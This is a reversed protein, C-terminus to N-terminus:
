KEGSGLPASRGSPTQGRGDWAPSAQIGHGPFRGPLLLVQVMDGAALGPGPPICLLGQALLMQGRPCHERDLPRALLRGNELALSCSTLRLAQASGRAPTTLTALAAPPAGSLGRLGFLAPLVLARCAAFVAPPTGPLGFLLCRGRRCALASKAPHLALGQFLPEFGARLAAALSFDREGPGTGGTTVILDFDEAALAQAIAEPENACVRAAVEGAGGERLLGELLLLNDAVLLPGSAAGAAELPLLENGVALVLVRPAPFVLAERRGLSALAAAAAPTLVQGHALVPTGQALESGPGRVGHGPALPAELLVAEPELRVDERAAVADAGPPLPAGTLVRCAQGPSLPGPPETSPRVQGSLPLRLPNQPTAAITDASRLAVGDLASRPRSPVDQDARVDEAAALGLAQALPLSRPERPRAAELLLALAADLDLKRTVDLRGTM